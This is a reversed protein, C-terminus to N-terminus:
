VYLHKKKLLIIGAKTISNKVLNKYVAKVGSSNEFYEKYLAKDMVIDLKTEPQILWDL